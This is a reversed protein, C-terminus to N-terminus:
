DLNNSFFSYINDLMVMNHFWIRVKLNGMDDTYFSFPPNKETNFNIFHLLSKQTASQIFMRKDGIMPSGILEVNPSLYFKTWDGQNEAPSKDKRMIEQYAMLVKSSVILQIKANNNHPNMAPELTIVEKWFSTVADVSETAIDFDPTNVYSWNSKPDAALDTIIKKVGDFTEYPSRFTEPQGPLPPTPEQYEALYLIKLLDRKVMDPIYYTLIWKVIATASMPEGSNVLPSLRTQFFEAIDEFKEGVFNLGMRKKLAYIPKDGSTVFTKNGAAQLVNTTPIHYTVVETKWTEKRNTSVEFYRDYGSEIAIAKSITDKLSLIEPLVIKNVDELLFSM